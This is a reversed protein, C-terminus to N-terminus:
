STKSKTSFKANRLLGERLDVNEKELKLVKKELIEIKREYERIKNKM